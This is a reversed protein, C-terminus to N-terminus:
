AAGFREEAKHWKKPYSCKRGPCSSTTFATSPPESTATNQAVPEPLDIQKWSGANTLLPVAMTM